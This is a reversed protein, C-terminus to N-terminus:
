ANLLDDSLALTVEGSDVGVGRFATMMDTNKYVNTVDIQQLCDKMWPLDKNMGDILIVIEVAEMSKISFYGSYQRHEFGRAELYKRIANYAPRTDNGFIAKLENTGLDFHIAKRFRRAAM